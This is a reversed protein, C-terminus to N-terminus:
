LVFRFEASAYLAQVLSMWAAAEANAPRIEPEAPRSDTRDVNDPDAPAAPPAAPKAAVPLTL